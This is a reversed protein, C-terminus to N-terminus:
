FSASFVGSTISISSSSLSIVTSSVTLASSLSLDFLAEPSSSIMGSINFFELSFINGYRLFRNLLIKSSPINGMWHPSAVMM